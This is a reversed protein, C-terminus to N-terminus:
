GAAQQATLHVNSVYTEAPLWDRKLDYALAASLLCAYEERACFVLGNWLFAQPYAAGYGIVDFTSRALWPWTCASLSSSPQLSVTSRSPRLLETYLSNALTRRAHM